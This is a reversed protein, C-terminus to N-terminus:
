ILDGARPYKDERFSIHSVSTENEQNILNIIDDLARNYRIKRHAGNTHHGRKNVSLPDIELRLGEIKQLLETNHSTLVRDTYTKLVSEMCERVINDPDKTQHIAFLSVLVSELESERLTTPKNPM